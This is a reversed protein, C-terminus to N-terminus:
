INMLNVVTLTIRQNTRAQLIQMARPRCRRRHTRAVAVCVAVDMLHSAQAFMSGANPHQVFAAAGDQFRIACEASICPLLRAGFRSAIVLDIGNAHRVILCKQIRKRCNTKPLPRYVFAEAACTFRGCLAATLQCTTQQLRQSRCRAAFLRSKENAATIRTRISRFVMELARSSVIRTLKM